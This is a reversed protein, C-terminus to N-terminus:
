PHQDLLEPLELGFQTPLCADKRCSSLQAERFGQFGCSIIGPAGYGLPMVVIM